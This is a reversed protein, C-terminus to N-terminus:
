YGPFGSTSLAYFAVELEGGGDGSTHRGGSSARQTESRRAQLSHQTMRLDVHPCSGVGRPLHPSAQGPLDNFNTLRCTHSGCPDHSKQFM